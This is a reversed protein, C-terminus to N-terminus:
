TNLLLSLLAMCLTLYNTFDFQTDGRNRQWFNLEIIHKYELVEILDIISSEINKNKTEYCFYSRQTQEFIFELQKAKFVDLM